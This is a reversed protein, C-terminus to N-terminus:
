LFNIFFNLLTVHDSNNLYCNPKKFDEHNCDYQKIVLRKNDNLYKLGIRDENYIESQDLDIINLPDINKVDYFEFKSSEFPTIVNDISSWIIIFNNLSQLNNKYNNYEEHSKANNLYILFDNNDLYEQYKFPNKWYELRKLEINKNYIGMHPTGLTILSNVRNIKDSYKEVYCRGLLGGQSIGIINIKGNINLKEINQSLIECQKNMNMFISDLKGNGIEINYVPINYENLSGKLENLDNIDGGIGHLLITPLFLLQNILISM